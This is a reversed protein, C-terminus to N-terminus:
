INKIRNNFKKAVLRKLDKPMFSYYRGKKEQRKAVLNGKFYDDLASQLLESALHM